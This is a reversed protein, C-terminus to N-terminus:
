SNMPKEWISAAIRITFAGPQRSDASTPDNLNLWNAAFAQRAGSLM